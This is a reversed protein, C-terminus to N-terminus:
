RAYLRVVKRGSGPQLCKARERREQARKEFIPADGASQSRSVISESLHCASAQDLDSPMDLFGILVIPSEEVRLPTKDDIAANIPDTTSFELM